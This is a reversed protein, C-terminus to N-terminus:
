SRGLSAHVARVAYPWPVGDDFCGASELRRFLADRDASFIPGHPGQGAVEALGDEVMTLLAAEVTQRMDDYTM